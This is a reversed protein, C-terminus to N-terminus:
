VLSWFKTSLICLFYRRPLAAANFMTIVSVPAPFATVLTIGDKVKKWTINEGETCKIVPGHAGIIFENNEDFRHSIKSHNGDKYIKLQKDIDGYYENCVTTKTDLGGAINDLRTEM